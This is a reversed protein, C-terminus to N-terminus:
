AHVAGAGRSATEGDDDTSGRSAASGRSTEVRFLWPGRPLLSVSRASCWQAARDARRWNCSRHPADRSWAATYLKTLPTVLTKIVPFLFVQLHKEVQWHAKETTDCWGLVRTKCIPLTVQNNTRLGAMRPFGQVPMYERGQVPQQCWMAGCGTPM